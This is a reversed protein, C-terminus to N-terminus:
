RSSRPRESMRAGDGHGGHLRRLLGRARTRSRITRPARRRTSWPSRHRFTRPRRRSLRRPNPAPTRTPPPPPSSATTRSPRTSLPTRRRRRPSRWRATEAAGPEEDSHVRQRDEEDLGPELRAGPERRGAAGSPDDAPAQHGAAADADHRSAALTESLKQELGMQTEVARDGRVPRPM